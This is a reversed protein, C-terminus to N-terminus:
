EQLQKSIWKKLESINRIWKQTFDNTCKKYFERNYDDYRGRINFTSITDLLDKQDDNLILNGKESLRVLDHIFPPHSSNKKIYWAKLLKELVLHGIFLAWTNHTKESLHIMAQFDEEASDMWFKIHEERNMSVIM